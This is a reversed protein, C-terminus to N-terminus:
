KKPRAKQTAHGAPAALLKDVQGFLDTGDFIGMTLLSYGFDNRIVGTQDILFLHPIEVKPNEPTAMMYSSSAQGCDFLIPYSIGHERLFQGVTQITDPPNAIALVQVRGAYKKTVEELTGAFKMCHPCKTNMIELLVVKGRYDALDHQKINIDPLSFGPARRNSLEGSAWAPALCLLFVLLSKRM